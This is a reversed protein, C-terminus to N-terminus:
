SSQVRQLDADLHLRRSFGRVLAEAMEEFSPSRGLLERVHTTGRRLRERMAEIRGPDSRGHRLYDVLQLHAPGMLLSGHQLFARATRRQASGVLKRGQVLIEARGASVFCPRASLPPEARRSPRSLHATIGMIELGAALAEGVIAHSESLSSGFRGDTTSAVLAYTLEEWHLVARGGTPRQVVDIGAARCADLDLIQEPRQLLGLSVAPPSWSYVRLTPPAGSAHAFLLEGDRRMNEAGSGGPEFFVRLRSRSSGDM